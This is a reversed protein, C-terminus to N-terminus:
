QFVKELMVASCLLKSEEFNCKQSLLNIHIDCQLMSSWSIAVALACCFMLNKEDTFLSNFSFGSSGLGYSGATVRQCVLFTNSKSHQNDNLVMM